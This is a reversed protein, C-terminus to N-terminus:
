RKGRAGTQAADLARDGMELAPYVRAELAEVRGELYTIRDTLIQVIQEHSRGVVVRGTFFAGMVASLITLVTGVLWPLGDNNV